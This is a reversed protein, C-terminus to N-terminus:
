KSPLNSNKTFDILEGKKLLIIAKKYSTRQGKVMKRKTSRRVKKGRQILTTVKEVSVGYLKEVAKKIEIKNSKKNVIFTYKQEQMLKASKETLAPCILTFNSM